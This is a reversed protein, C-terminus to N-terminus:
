DNGDEDARQIATIPRWLIYEYKSANSTQLGDNLSMNLLAFLRATEPVTLNNAIAQEQAIHNWVTVNTRPQRWVETIQTQDATRDPLGNNDRDVGAQDADSAGVVKVENLDRAYEATDLAPFAGPRFQSNSEIAFPDIFPVNVNAAPAFNPPTLQYTGPDNNPPTWSMVAASGDTSRLALIQRAVEQGVAVGQMKLRAPIGALDAVLKADYIAQRSPYLAVLTDHAAQAAAATQSAGSSANVDAHYPEYTKDIANVADFMAVQVLAMNRSSPVPATNVALSKLLEENWQTVVNGSPLCRDDLTEIQPRIGSRRADHRRRRHSPGPRLAALMSRLTM